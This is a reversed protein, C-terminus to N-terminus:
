SIKVHWVYRALLDFSDMRSPCRSEGLAQLGGPAVEDYDAEDACLNKPLM